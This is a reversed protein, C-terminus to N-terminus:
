ATFIGLSQLSFRNRIMLVSGCSQLLKGCGV